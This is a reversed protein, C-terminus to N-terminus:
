DMKPKAEPKQCFSTTLVKKWPSSSGHSIFKIEVEGDKPFSLFLIFFYRSSACIHFIAQKHMVCSHERKQLVM